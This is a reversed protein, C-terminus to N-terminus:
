VQEAPEQERAAKEKGKRFRNAKESLDIGRYLAEIKAEKTIEWYILAAVLGRLLIIAFISVLEATETAIVTRLVEGGMKFALALLIGESLTTRVDNSRKVWKRISIIATVLLVLVGFSELILIGWEVIYHFIAQSNSLIAAM